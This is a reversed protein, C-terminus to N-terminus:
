FTSFYKRSVLWIKSFFQGILPFDSNLFLLGNDRSQWQWIKCLFPWFIRSCLFWILYKYTCFSAGWKKKWNTNWIPHLLLRSPIKITSNKRWKASLIIFALWLNCTPFTALIWCSKYGWYAKPPFSEWYLLLVLTDQPSWFFNSASRKRERWWFIRGSYDPKKGKPHQLPFRIRM